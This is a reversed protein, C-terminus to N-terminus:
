LAPHMPSPVGPANWLIPIGKQNLEAFAAWLRAYALLPTLGEQYHGLDTPNLRIINGGGVLIADYSEICEAFSQWPVSAVCDSWVPDGGVPSVFDMHLDPFFRELRRHALLPFLLDGYNAVDFTGLQAIRVQRRPM